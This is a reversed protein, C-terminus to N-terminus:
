LNKPWIEDDGIKVEDMKLRREEIHMDLNIQLRFM